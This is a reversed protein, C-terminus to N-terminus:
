GLGLSPFYYYPIGISAIRAIDQKYLYYQLDTVVSDNAGGTPPQPLAGILDSQSPGRGESQLAGEIQWASSAVEWVFDEPLCYGNLCNYSDPCPQYLAPPFVLESTAVPTPSVTTTIPLM